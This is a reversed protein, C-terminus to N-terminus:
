SLWDALSMRLAKLARALHNEVTKTSIGMTAAIEAYSLQHQRHLLYTQRCRPPLASLARTVAEGLEGAAVLDDAGVAPQGMALAREEREAEDRVQGAVRDRALNKLARNRVSGYLYAKLGHRVDWEARREWISCFVDDVLEEAIQASIVYTEAFLCLRNYYVMFIHEFAATDGRRVRSVLEREDESLHSGPGPTASPNGLRM